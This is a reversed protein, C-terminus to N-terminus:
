LKTIRNIKRIVRHLDEIAKELDPLVISLRYRLPKGTTNQVDAKFLLAPAADDDSRQCQFGSLQAKRTFNWTIKEVSCFQERPGTTNVACGTLFLLWAGLVAAALPKFGM